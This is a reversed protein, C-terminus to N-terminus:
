DNNVSSSMAATFTGGPTMAVLSTAATSKIEAYALGGTVYLLLNSSPEAGLRARFTGFWPMKQTLTGTTTVTTVAIGAFVETIPPFTASGRQGTGQFDAELGAVWSKNFQVNYGIQAGGLVGDMHQSTSFLVFSVSPQYDLTSFRRARLRARRRPSRIFIESHM